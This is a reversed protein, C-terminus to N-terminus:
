PSHSERCCLGKGRVRVFVCLPDTKFLMLHVKMKRWSRHVNPIRFLLSVRFHLHWSAQMQFEQYFQSKTLFFKRPIHPKPCMCLHNPLPKYRPWIKVWCTIQSATCDHYLLALYVSDLSINSAWLSSLAPLTRAVDSHLYNVKSM